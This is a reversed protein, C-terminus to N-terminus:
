SVRYKPSKEHPTWVGQGGGGREEPDACAKCSNQIILGKWFGRRTLTDDALLMQLCKPGMVDSRIQTGITQCESPIGSLIKRSLNNQFFILLHSFWLFNGLMCLTLDVIVTLTFRSYNHTLTGSTSHRRPWNYVITYSKHSM